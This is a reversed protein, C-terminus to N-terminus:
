EYSASSSTQYLEMQNYAGDLRIDRDKEANNVLVLIIKEGDRFGVSSVQSLLGLSDKVEIRVAGTRIHSTFHRLAYYRSNIALNGYDNDVARLLGDSLVSGDEDYGTGNVAVWTSWSAANLLALDEVIINATYLASEISDADLTCPLECWESMEFHKDPFNEAFRNGAARKLQKCNEMWYSHGSYVDCYGNLIDSEFYAEQWEFYEGTMRGSDLGSLGYPTDREQMRVAFLEMLEIAEELEYHCGEQGVWEGGWSWQPENIPSIYTVPYGLSVFHDAITLLYDVYAEYNERPLNSEKPEYGGSAHGSVTMSYHPSNCFLVIETAGYELALDMMRRADADQSFDFIYEGQEEDWVYFSETRRTPDDIRTDPNEHEGAGVNYRYTNLGLGEDPDFLLRALWEDNDLNGVEQAWWAASTGWGYFEQYTQQADIQLTQAPLIGILVSELFALVVALPRSLFRSVEEVIKFAM